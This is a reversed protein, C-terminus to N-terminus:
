CKQRVGGLILSPLKSANTKGQNKPHVVISELHPQSASGRKVIPAKTADGGFTPGNTTTPGM